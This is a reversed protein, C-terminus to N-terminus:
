EAWNAAEVFIDIADQAKSRDIDFVQEKGSMRVAVSELETASADKSVVVYFSYRIDGRSIAVEVIVESDLDCLDSYEVRKHSTSLVTAGVNGELITYMNAYEALTKDPYEPLYIALAADKVAQVDYLDKKSMFLDLNERVDATIEGDPQGLDSAVLRTELTENTVAIYFRILMGGLTNAGDGMDLCVLSQTEPDYREELEDLEDEPTNEPTVIYWSASGVNDGNEVYDQLTNPYGYNAPATAQAAALIDEETPGQAAPAASKEATENDAPSGCATLSFALAIALSFARLKKM